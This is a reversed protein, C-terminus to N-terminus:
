CVKIEDMMRVPFVGSQLLHACLDEDIVIDREFLGRNRQLIASHTEIMAITQPFVSTMDFM